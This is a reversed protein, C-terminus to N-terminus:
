KKLLVIEKEKLGTFEIIEDIPKNKALMKKAIEINREKKSKQREEEIYMDIGYMMNTIEGREFKNLIETKANEDPIHNLYIKM